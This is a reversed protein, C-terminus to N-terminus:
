VFEDRGDHAEILQVMDNRNVIAVRDQHGLFKGRIQSERDTDRRSCVENGRQFHLIFDAVVCDYHRNKCVAVLFVQASVQQPLLRYSM